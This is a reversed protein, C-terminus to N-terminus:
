VQKGHKDVGKRNVLKKSKAGTEFLGVSALGGILGGLGFLFLDAQLYWGFILGVVIGLLCAISPILDTDSIKPKIMQFLATILIALVTSLGVAEAFVAKLEEIM